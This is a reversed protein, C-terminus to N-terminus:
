GSPWREKGSYLEITHHRGDRPLDPASSAARPFLWALLSRAAGVGIGLSVVLSGTIAFIDM